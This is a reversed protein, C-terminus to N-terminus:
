GATSSFVLIGERLRTSGVHTISTYVDVDVWPNFSGNPGLGGSVISMWMDRYTYLTSAWNKRRRDIERDLSTLGTVEYRTMVSYM